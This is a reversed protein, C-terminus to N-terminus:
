FLTCQVADYTVACTLTSDKLRSVPGFDSHRDSTMLPRLTM